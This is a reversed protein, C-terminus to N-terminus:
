KIEYLCKLSEYFELKIGDKKCRKRINKIMKKMNPTLKHNNQKFWEREVDLVLAKIGLSLSLDYWKNIEDENDNYDPIIIFKSWVCSKGDKQAEAYKKLNETVKNFFPVNKIKLYTEECGSDLSCCLNTETQQLLKEIGDSFKICNSNVIYRQMGNTICLDIIEEFDIMLAPEGGAFQIYGYYVQKLLQKEFLEKFYPLLSYEKVGKKSWCDCYVCKSNCRVFSNIDVFYIEDKNNLEETPQISSCGNCFDPFKGEAIQKKWIERRKKIENWDLHDYSDALQPKGGGTHASKCCARIFFREFNLGSDMYDCKYLKAM